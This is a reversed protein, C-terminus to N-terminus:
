SSIWNLAKIRILYFLSLLLFLIFVTAEFFGTWGSEVISVSWAYLYLAEVDFIVFFMAILYFKVSFHLYTNGVPVIGSEFPTNKYRSLSRGGLFWSAFLMFFCFLLSFFIFYFFSLYETIELTNQLM